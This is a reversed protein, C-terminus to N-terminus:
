KWLAYLLELLTKLVCYLEIKRGTYKPKHGENLYNHFMNNVVHKTPYKM